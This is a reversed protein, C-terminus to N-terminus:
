HLVLLWSDYFLDTNTVDFKDTLNDLDITILCGNLNILFGTLIIMKFVAMLIPV